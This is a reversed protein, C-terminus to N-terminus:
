HTPPPTEVRLRIGIDFSKWLRNEFQCFVAGKPTGEGNILTPQNALDSTNSLDYSIIGFHNAIGKSYRDSAFIDPSQTNNLRSSIGTRFVQNRQYSGALNQASSQFGTGIFLAFFLFIYIISSTKM